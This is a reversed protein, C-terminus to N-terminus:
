AVSLRPQGVVVFASSATWLTRAHAREDTPKKGTLKPIQPRFLLTVNRDARAAPCQRRNATMARGHLAPYFWM